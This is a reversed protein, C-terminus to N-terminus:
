DLYVRGHASIPDDLLTADAVDHAVEPRCDLSRADHGSSLWSVPLRLIPSNAPLQRADIPSAVSTTTHAVIPVYTEIWVRKM